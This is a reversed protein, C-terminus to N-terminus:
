HLIKDVSKELTKELSKLDQEEFEDYLDPLIQREPLNEVLTYERNIKIEYPLYEKMISKPKAFKLEAKYLDMNQEEHNCIQGIEDFVQSEGILDEKGFKIYINNNLNFSIHKKSKKISSNKIINNKSEFTESFYNNENNNTKFNKPLLNNKNLYKNEINDIINKNDRNFVIDDNNNIKMFKNEESIQFNNVSPTNKRSSLLDRLISESFIMENSNNRIKKKFSKDVQENIDKQYKFNNDASNSILKIEKPISNIENKNRMNENINNLGNLGLGINQKFDNFKRNKFESFNINVESEEIENIDQNNIKKKEGTLSFPSKYTKAFLTPINIKNNINNNINNNTNNYENVVFFNYNIDKQLKNNKNKIEPSSIFINNVIYPKTNIMKDNEFPYNNNIDNNFNINNNSSDIVGEIDPNSTSPVTEQINQDDTEPEKLKVIDDALDSLNFSDSSLNNGKAIFTKNVKKETNELFLELDDVIEDLEKESSNEFIQNSNHNGNKRNSFSYFNNSIIGSKSKKYFAFKKSKNSPKIIYDLSLDVDKSKNQFPIKHETESIHRRFQKNNKKTNMKQNMLKGKQLNRINVLKNPIQINKKPNINKKETYNNVDEKPLVNRHFNVIPMTSNLDFSYLIDDSKMKIFNFNNDGLKRPNNYTNNSNHSDTNNNKNNFNQIYAKNIKMLGNYNRTPIIRQNFKTKIKKAFIDNNLQLNNNKILLDNKENNKIHSSYLNNKKALIFNNEINSKPENIIKTFDKKIMHKQTNFRKLEKNTIKHNNLNDFSKRSIDIFLKNQNKNLNYNTTEINTKNHPISLIDKKSFPNQETYYIRYNNNTNQNNLKEM